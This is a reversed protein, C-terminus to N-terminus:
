PKIRKPIPNSSPPTFITSGHLFKWKYKQQNEAIDFKEMIKKNQYNDDLESYNKKLEEFEKTKNNLINQVEIYSPLTVEVQLGGEGFLFELKEKLSMKGFGEFLSVKGRCNVIDEISIEKKIKRIM